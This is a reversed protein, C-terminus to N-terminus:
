SRPGGGCPESGRFRPGSARHPAPAPLARPSALATTAVWVMRHRRNTSRQADDDPERDRGRRAEGGGGRAGGRPSGDRRARRDAAARARERDAERWWRPSGHGADAHQDVIGFSLDDDRPAVAVLADLGADQIGWRARQGDRVVEVVGEAHGDHARRGQRRADEEGDPELIA